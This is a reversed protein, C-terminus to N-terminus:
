DTTGQRLSKLYLVQTRSPEARLGAVRYGHALNVRGMAVNAQDAATEVLAVGQAALWDHQAKMLAGAIGRRRFAPVVGGLWSYYKTESMAYGLKFGVLGGDVRACAASAAPMNKLRWRVSAVAEGFVLSSAEDISRLLADDFPPLHLEIHM